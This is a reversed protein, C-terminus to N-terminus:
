APTRTGAVVVANGVFLCASVNLDCAGTTGGASDMVIVELGGRAPTNPPPPNVTGTFSFPIRLYGVTGNMLGPVSITFTDALQAVSQYETYFNSASPQSFSASAKLALTNHDEDAFGTVGISHAGNVITNSYNLTTPQSILTPCAPTVNCLVIFNQAVLGALAPLASALLAACYVFCRM